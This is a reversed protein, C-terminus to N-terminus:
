PEIGQLRERRCAATWEIRVTVAQREAFARRDDGQFGELARAPAIRRDQSFEDAVSRGDVVMMEGLGVRAAVRRQRDHLQGTRGGPHRRLVDVVDVGM